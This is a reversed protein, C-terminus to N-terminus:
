RTLERWGGGQFRPDEELVHGPEQELRTVVEAHRGRLWDPVVEDWRGATPVYTVPPDAGWGGDFIYGVDGEWYIVEEKWRFQVSGTAPTM